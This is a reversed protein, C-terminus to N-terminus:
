VNKWDEALMGYIICDVYRDYLWEAQRLRGENVFGLREPISRSKKNEVAARIDVRNLNLEHFAYHTLAKVARTM